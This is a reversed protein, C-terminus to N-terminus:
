KIYICVSFPYLGYAVKLWQKETLGDTYDVERRQRSGRGLLKEEEEENTLKQVDEENKILWAPLEAQTMLRGFKELFPDQILLNGIWKLSLLYYCRKLKWIIYEVAVHFCNFPM